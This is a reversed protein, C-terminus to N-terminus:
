HSTPASKATANTPPALPEPKRWFGIGLYALLLVVAATLVVEFCRPLHPRLTVYGLIPALVFAALLCVGVYGHQFGFNEGILHVLEVAYVSILFLEVLKLKAQVDAIERVHRDVAGTQFTEVIGDLVQDLGSAAYFGRLVAGNPTSLYFRLAAVEEKLRRGRDLFARLREDGAGATQVADAALQRLEGAVRVLVAFNQQLENVAPAAAPKYAIAVGYYTFVGVWDPGTVMSTAPVFPAGSKLHGWLRGGVAAAWRSGDEYLDVGEALPITVCRYHDARLAAPEDLFRHEVVPLAPATGAPGIPFDRVEVERRPADKTGPPPFPALDELEARVIATVPDDSLDAARGAEGIYTGRGPTVVITGAYNQGDFWPDDFAPAGAGRSEFGRRNPKFQLGHGGRDLARLEAAQLAAWVPYLNAGAAREPDLSFFYQTRNWMGPLGDSQAIATFLFGQKRPSGERDQRAWEKFLFCEPDRVYVGDAAIWAPEHGPPRFHGADFRGDPGRLPPTAGGPGSEVKPFWADFKAAQPLYVTAIRARKLDARYLDEQRDLLKLEPAFVTSGELVSEILPNLGRATMAAVVADFFETAGSTETRYDRKTEGAVEGVAYLVSHLGRARPCRLPRCNDVASAYAALLVPWRRDPPLDTPPDFWPLDKRMPLWGDPRVGFEDWGDAPITGEIVKRALYLSCYADFDPDRHTVLWLTGFKPVGNPAFRDRLARANHLIGASASPFNGGDSRAFHHDIVPLDCGDYGFSMGGVDAALENAFLKEPGWRALAEEWAAVDEPKAPKQPSPPVTEREGAAARFSTGYNVFRYRFQM